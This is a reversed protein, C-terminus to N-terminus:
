PLEDVVNRIPDFVLRIAQVFDGYPKVMAEFLDVGPGVSIAAM